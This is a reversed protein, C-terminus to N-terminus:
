HHHHHNVHMKKWAQMTQRAERTIAGGPTKVMFIGSMGSDSHGQVHCHYMWAGPGVHEGAIVQFGFSDAPGLTRNDIIRENGVGSPIGTRNDAWRHAHLHFTHFLEGHGIVVFEVREGENAQFVPTKPSKKLNITRGKFVIVFPPRDPVPDGQRRVIFAGFLGANVGGTGHPSGLCHDHYHWYGASGPDLSGDARTTPGPASFVYTRSRGPQVCSKNLPTGDSAVSYAVGHAHMSLAQKADNVLTIQRCEGETMEITPGPIQLTKPSLGYGIRKKGIPGAYLTMSNTPDDCAQAPQAQVRPGAVTPVSGALLALAFLGVAVLRFSSREGVAM